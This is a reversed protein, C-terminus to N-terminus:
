MEAIRGQHLIIGGLLQADFHRQKLTRKAAERVCAYTEPLLEDLTEGEAFRKKFEATKEKLADDSLAEFEKELENIRLILPELTKLFRANADGFMKAIISM